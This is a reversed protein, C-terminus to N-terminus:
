KNQLNTLGVPSKKYCFLVGVQFSYWNLHRPFIPLNLHLYFRIPMGISPPRFGDVTEYQNHPKTCTMVNVVHSGHKVQAGVRTRVRLNWFVEFWHGMFRASVVGAVIGCMVNYTRYAHM